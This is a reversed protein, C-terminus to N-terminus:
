SLGALVAFVKMNLAEDLRRKRLMAGQIIGALEADAAQPRNM